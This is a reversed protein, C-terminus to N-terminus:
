GINKTTGGHTIESLTKPNDLLVGRPTCAIVFRYFKKDKSFMLRPEIHEIPKLQDKWLTTEIGKRHNDFLEQATPKHEKFTKVNAGFDMFRLVIPTGSGKDDELKTISEVTVDHGEWENKDKDATKFKKNATYQKQKTM